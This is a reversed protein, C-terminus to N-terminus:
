EADVRAEELPGGPRSLAAITQRMVGQAMRVQGILRWLAPWQGPHVLVYRLLTGTSARAHDDTPLRASPLASNYPDLVIRLHVFPVGRAAAWRALPGAEMEVAVAGLAAGAEKDEVTSLVRDSTLVPGV